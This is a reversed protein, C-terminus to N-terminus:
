LPNLSLTLLAKEPIGLELLKNKTQRRFDRLFEETMEATRVLTGELDFIVSVVAKIV